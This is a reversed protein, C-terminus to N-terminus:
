GHVKVKIKVQLLYGLLLQLAELLLGGGGPLLHSVQLGLGGVKLFRQFLSLYFWHHTYVLHPLPLSHYPAQGSQPDSASSEAVFSWFPGALHTTQTNHVVRKRGHSFNTGSQGAIETPLQCCYLRPCIIHDPLTARQNQKQSLLGFWRCSHTSPMMSQAIKSLAIQILSVKLKFFCFSFFKKSGGLDQLSALCLNQATNIIFMYVIFMNYQSPFHM